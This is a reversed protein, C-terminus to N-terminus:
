VSLYRFTDFFEQASETSRAFNGVFKLLEFGFDGLQIVLVKRFFILIQNKFHM